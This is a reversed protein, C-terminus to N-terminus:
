RIVLIQAAQPKAESHLRLRSKKPAPPLPIRDFSLSFDIWVCGKGEPISVQNL